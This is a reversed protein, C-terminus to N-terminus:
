FYEQIINLSYLLWNILPPPSTPPPTMTFIYFKNEREFM